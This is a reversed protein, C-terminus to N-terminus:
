QTTQTFTEKRSHNPAGNKIQLEQKQQWLNENEKKDKNRQIKFSTTSLGYNSISPQHNDGIRAAV